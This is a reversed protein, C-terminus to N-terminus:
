PNERHGGCSRKALPSSATTTESALEMLVANAEASGITRLYYIARMKKGAPDGPRMLTASLEELPPFSKLMIEHATLGDDPTESM